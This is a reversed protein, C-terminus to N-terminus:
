IQYHAVLKLLSCETALIHNSGTSNLTESVLNRSSILSVVTILLILSFPKKSILFYPVTVKGEDMNKLIFDQVDIVTTATSYQARFGAQTSSLINNVSKYTLICKTM